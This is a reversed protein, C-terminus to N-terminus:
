SPKGANRESQWGLEEADFQKLKDEGQEMRQLEGVVAEGECV